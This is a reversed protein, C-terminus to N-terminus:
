AEVEARAEHLFAEGASLRRKVTALSLGTMKGIEELPVGEVRRLLLVVRVEAPMEGVIGYIESLEAYVDPPCHRGVFADFDVPADGRWLGLRAWLRQRRLLKCTRRVLVSCLWSKLAAPEELRHIAAFAEVFSEQLMDEADAASGGVLRFALGYILDAYRRYLAEFAWAEGARAAVVLAADSPM